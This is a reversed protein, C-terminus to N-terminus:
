RISPNSGWPNRLVHRTADRPISTPYGRTAINFYWQGDWNSAVSGYGPSAPSPAWIPYGAQNTAWADIAIQHGAAILLPVRDVVSTCANVTLPFWVPYSNTSGGWSAEFAAVILDCPRGYRQRRQCCATPMRASPPGAGQEARDHPARQGQRGDAPRSQDVPRQRLRARGPHPHVRPGVGGFPDGLEPRHGCDTAARGVPAMRRRHRRYPCRDQRWQSGAACHAGQGVVPDRHWRERPRYSACIPPLVMAM